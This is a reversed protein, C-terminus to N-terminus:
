QPRHLDVPRHRRPRGRARSLVCPQRVGHGSELRGVESPATRRRSRLGTWGPTVAAVQALSERRVLNTVVVETSTLEIRARYAAVLIPVRRRRDRDRHDAPVALRVHDLHGPLKPLGATTPQSAPQTKCVLNVWASNVCGADNRTGPTYYTTLTTGVATASGAASRMRSQTVLGTVANFVTEKVVDQGGPVVTTVRMPQKLTWGTSDGPLGYATRTTRVDTEATPTTDASQSAAVTTQVVSHKPGDLTPDTGPADLTGYTPHTHERANVWAGDIAVTHLPGYSDLLDVGDAAYISRSDVARAVAASGTGAPLGLTTPDGTLALDRDAASLTRVSNGTADFESTDVKWGAQGTGSFFASNVERGNADLGHVEGDRLDTTSVADGPGFVATATVPLDAQAWAAVRGASLDPHTEDTGAAAGIPVEYRVTTTETGSGHAADHTRSAHDFRGQKRPTVPLKSLSQGAGPAAARSGARRGAM